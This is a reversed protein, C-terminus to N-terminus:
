AVKLKIRHHFMYSQTEFEKQNLFKISKWYNEFSFAYICAYLFYLTAYKIKGTM